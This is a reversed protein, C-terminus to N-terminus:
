IKVIKNQIMIKASKKQQTIKEKNGTIDKISIKSDKLEKLLFSKFIVIGQLRILIEVKLNYELTQGDYNKFIYPSTISRIMKYKNAQIHNCSAGTDILIKTDEIEREGNYYNGLILFPLHVDERTIKQFSRGINNRNNNGIM